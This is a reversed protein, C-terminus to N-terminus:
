NILSLKSMIKYFTEFENGKYNSERLKIAIFEAESKTFTPINKEITEQVKLKDKNNESVVKGKTIFAM